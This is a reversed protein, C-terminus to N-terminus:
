FRENQPPNNFEKEVIDALENTTDFLDTGEKLKDKLFTGIAHVAKRPLQFETM